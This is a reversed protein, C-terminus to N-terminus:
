SGKLGPKEFKRLSFKSSPEGCHAEASVRLWYARERMSFMQKEYTKQEAKSLTRKGKLKAALTKARKSLELAGQRAEGKLVTTLAGANTGAYHFFSSVGRADRRDLPSMSNVLADELEMVKRGAKYCGLMLEPISVKVKM